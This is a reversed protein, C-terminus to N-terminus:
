VFFYIITWHGNIVISVLDGRWISYKLYSQSWFRCMVASYVVNVINTNHVIDLMKANGM